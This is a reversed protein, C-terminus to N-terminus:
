QAPKRVGAVLDLWVSQRGADSFRWPVFDRSPRETQRAALEAIPIQAPLTGRLHGSYPAHAGAPDTRRRPVLRIADEAVALAEEENKGYMVIQPLAPVRVTFGGEQEPEFSSQSSAYKTM